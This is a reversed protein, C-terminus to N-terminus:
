SRLKTGGIIEPASLALLKSNQVCIRLMLRYLLGNFNKPFTATPSEFNKLASMYIPRMARDDKRYSLKRTEAITRMPRELDFSSHSRKWINEAHLWKDNM